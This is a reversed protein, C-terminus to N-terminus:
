QIHSTFHPNWHTINVGPDCCSTIAYSRCLQRKHIARMRCCWYIFVKNCHRCDFYIDTLSLYMWNPTFIDYNFKIKKMENFMGLSSAQLSFDGPNGLLLTILPKGATFFKQQSTLRYYADYALSTFTFDGRVDFLFRMLYNIIENCVKNKLDTEGFLRFVKYKESLAILDAVDHLVDRLDQYADM